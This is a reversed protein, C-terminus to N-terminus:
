RGGGAAKAPLWAVPFGPAAVSAMRGGSADAVAWRGPTASSGRYGACLIASSGPSWLCARYTYGVDPLTSSTIQGGITWISLEAADGPASGPSGRTAYALSRGTPSWALDSTIDRGPASVSGLVRGFRDLVVIFGILSGSVPDVEVAVKSGAPDPYPVLAVRVRGALGIDRNLASATALIRAPRGADRLEVRSDPTVPRTVTASPAVPSAVSVFAGRAQADGAASDATGLSTSHGSSWSYVSAPMSTTIGFPGNLVVLAHGHAAFPEPWPLHTRTGLSLNRAVFTAAPGSIAIIQNNATVLYRGDPAVAPPTYGGRIFGPIALKRLRGGGPGALALGGDSTQVVVHGGAAIVPPAASRPRPQGSSSPWAAITVATAAALLLAAAPAAARRWWPRRPPEPDLAPFIRRQEGQDASAVLCVIDRGAM